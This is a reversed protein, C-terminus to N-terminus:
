DCGGESGESIRLRLACDEEVCSVGMDDMGPVLMDVLFCFLVVRHIETGEEVSATGIVSREQMVIDDRKWETKLIQPRASPCCCCCRCSFTNPRLVVSSHVCSTPPTLFYKISLRSKSSLKSTKRRIISASGHQSCSPPHQETAMSTTIIAQPTTKTKM